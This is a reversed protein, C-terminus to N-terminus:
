SGAGVRVFCRQWRASFSLFFGFNWEEVVCPRPREWFLFMLMIGGCFDYLHIKWCCFFRRNALRSILSMKKRGRKWGGCPFNSFPKHSNKEERARTRTKTYEFFDLKFFFFLFINSVLLLKGVLYVFSLFTKRQKKTLDDFVFLRRRSSVVVIINLAKTM